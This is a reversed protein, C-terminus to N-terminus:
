EKYRDCSGYYVKGCSNIPSTYLLNLGGAKVTARALVSFVLVLIAFQIDTM